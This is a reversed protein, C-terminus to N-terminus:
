VNFFYAQDPNDKIYTQTEALNSVTCIKDRRFRCKDALDYIGHASNSFTNENESHKEGFKAL